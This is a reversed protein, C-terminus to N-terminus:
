KGQESSQYSGFAKKRDDDNTFGAQKIDVKNDSVDVAEPNFGFDAHAQEALRLNGLLVLDRIQVEAILRKVPEEKSTEKAPATSDALFKGVVTNDNLYTQLQAFTKDDGIKIAHAIALARVITPNEPTAFQILLPGIEPSNIQQIVALKRSLIPYEQPATEIVARVLLAAPEIGTRLKPLPSTRGILANLLHALQQQSPREHLFPLEADNQAANQQTQQSALLFMGLCVKELEPSEFLNKLQAYSVRNADALPGLENSLESRSGLYIDRYLARSAPTDGTFEKFAQWGPLSTKGGVFFDAKSIAVEDRISELIKAAAIQTEYDLTSKFKAAKELEGVATTGIRRLETQAKKRVTPDADGLLAIQRQITAPDVQAQSPQSTKIQALLTQCFITSALIAFAVAAWHRVSNTTSCWYSNLADGVKAETPISESTPLTKTQHHLVTRSRAQKLSSDTQNSSSLM